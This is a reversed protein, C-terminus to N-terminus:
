FYRPSRVRQKTYVPDYSIMIEHAGPARQIMTTIGFDYAYGARLQENVQLSFMAVASSGVRYGAGLSLRDQIFFNASLDTSLPAGETARTMISPRFKVMSGLPVVYGAALFIHIAEQHFRTVIGDSDMVGLYNQLLKPASIGFYGKRSWLYMGFGFNPAIRGSQDAAFTPDNPDTNEVQTNAIAAHNIGAKLGFALRTEKTIRIRYAFDAFASTTTSRGIKDHVLSGGVGLKHKDIPSHASLSHTIPAGDIAAWQVRSLATVNLVDSSGAYGPMINMMNWMYMSYMPDQQARVLAAAALAITLILGRTRMLARTMNM